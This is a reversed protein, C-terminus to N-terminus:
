PLLLRLQGLLVERVHHCFVGGLLLVLPLPLLLLLIGLCLLVLLELELSDRELWGANQLTEVIEQLHPARM